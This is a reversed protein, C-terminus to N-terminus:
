PNPILDDAARPSIRYNGRSFRVIGRATITKGVIAAGEAFADPGVIGFDIGVAADTDVQRKDANYTSCAVDAMEVLMGEHKELDEASADKALTVPAPTAAPGGTKEMATARIQTNCFFEQHDGTIRVEDGVQFNTKPSNSINVLVASFPNQSGDSVVYGDLTSTIFHNGVLVVGTLQIGSPGNVFMQDPNPCALSIASGQIDAIGSTTVSKLVVDSPGRPVLQYKNFHLRVVGTIDYVSGETLGIFGPFAFGIEVDGPTFKWGGAASAKAITVDNVRVLMSEYAENAIDGPTPVVLPTPAAVQTKVTITAVEIQTWCFVEKLQGTVDVVDGPVLDAAPRNAAPVRLLIGSYAGGDQDAVYYGDITGDEDPSADFKPTTVVVDNLAAAPNVDVFGQPNCTVATAEVQAAKVTGATVVIDPPPTTDPSTDPTGDPTTDPASTDPTVDSAPEDNGDCAPALGAILLAALLKPTSRINM